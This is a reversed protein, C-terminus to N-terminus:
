WDSHERVIAIIENGYKAVRHDGMGHIQALDFKDTPRTRAIAALIRDGFVHFPKIGEAEALERRWARLANALDADSDDVERPDGLVVGLLIKVQGELASIRHEMEEFTQTSHKATEM